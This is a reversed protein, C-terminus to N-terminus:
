APEILVGPGREDPLGADHGAAVPDDRRTDPGQSTDAIGRKGAAVLLLGLGNYQEGLLQPPSLRASPPSWYNASM